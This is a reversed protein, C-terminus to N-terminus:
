TKGRPRDTRRRDRSQVDTKIAAQDSKATAGAETLAAIDYDAILDVIRLFVSDPTTAKETLWFTLTSRPIDLYAELQEMGGLIEL